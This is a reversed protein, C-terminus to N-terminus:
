FAWVTDDDRSSRQGLWRSKRPRPNKASYFEFDDQHDKKRKKPRKSPGKKVPM